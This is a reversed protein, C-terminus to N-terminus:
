DARKEDLRIQKVFTPVGTLSENKKKRAEVSAKGAEVKQNYLADVKDAEKQVWGTFFYQDDAEFLEFKDICDRIFTCVKDPKFDKEALAEYTLDSFELVCPEEEFLMEIIRWYLGYGAYGYKKVMFLTEKSYMAKAQHGFFQRKKAM